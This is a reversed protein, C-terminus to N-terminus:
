CGGGGEGVGVGWPDTRTQIHARDTSTSAPLPVVLATLQLTLCHSQRGVRVGEIGRGGWFVPVSAQSGSAFRWLVCGLANLRSCWGAFQRRRKHSVEQGGRALHGM